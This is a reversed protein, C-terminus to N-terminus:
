RATVFLIPGRWRGSQEMIANLLGIDDAIQPDHPLAAAPIYYAPNELAFPVGYRKGIAAAREAVLEVAERTAPM